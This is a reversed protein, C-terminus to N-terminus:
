QLCEITAPGQVTARALGGMRLVMGPLRTTTFISAHATGVTRRSLGPAPSPKEAAVACTAAHDALHPVVRHRRLLLWKIVFGLGVIVIVILLLIWLWM